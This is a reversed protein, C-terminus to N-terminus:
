ANASVQRCMKCRETGLTHFQRRCFAQTHQMIKVTGTLFSRKVEVNLAHRSLAMINPIKDARVGNFLVLIMQNQAILIAPHQKEFVIGAVNLVAHNRFQSVQVAIHHKGNINQGNRGIFRYMLYFTTQQTHFGVNRVPLAALIRVVVERSNNRIIHLKLALFALFKKVVQGSTILAHHECHQCHHKSCIGLLLQVCIRFGYLRNGSLM